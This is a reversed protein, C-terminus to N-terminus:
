PQTQSCWFLQVDFAKKKKKFHLANNKRCSTERLWRFFGLPVGNLWDASIIFLCILDMVEWIRRRNGDYLLIGNYCKYIVSLM